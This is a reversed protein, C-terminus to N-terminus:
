TRASVATNSRRSVRRIRRAMVAPLLLLVAIGPWSLSAFTLAGVRGEADALLRAPDYAVGDKCVTEVNRVDRIKIAPNGDVVLLDARMGPEIRGRDREGLFRAGNSTAIEIATEPLFGAEVLLEIERQDGFGAIVGGWGTPDAGALLRGGAAVFAREFEIEKHLAAAFLRNANANRDRRADANREYVTRLRSALMPAVRADFADDDGTYSELM